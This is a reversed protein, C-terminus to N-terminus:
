KMPSFSVYEPQHYKLVMKLHNNIYAKGAKDVFGLKYGHEYQVENTELM